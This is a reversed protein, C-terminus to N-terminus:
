LHILDAWEIPSVTILDLPLLSIYVSQEIEPLVVM